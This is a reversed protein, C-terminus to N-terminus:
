AKPAASAAYRTNSTSPAITSARAFNVMVLRTPRMARVLSMGAVSGSLSGVTGSHAFSGLGGDYEAASTPAAGADMTGTMVVTEFAASVALNFASVASRMTRPSLTHNATVM